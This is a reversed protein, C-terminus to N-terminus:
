NTKQSSTYDYNYKQSEKNKNLENEQKTYCINSYNISEEHSSEGIETM